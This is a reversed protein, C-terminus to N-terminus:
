YGRTVPGRGLVIDACYVFSDSMLEACEVATLEPRIFDQVCTAFVTSFCNWNANRTKYRFDKNAYSNSNIPGSAFECVILRHDSCSADLLVRWKDLRVDVSSLTVDISSEGMPSSYTPPAEPTNHVVLNMEAIFDEVASRRNADTSRLKGYWLPSSANVDAGVIIKRGALAHLVNRLNHIHSAVPDSLQFYCSVAYFKFFPSSIEAVACHTSTLNTIATVTINSNNRSVYIGARAKNNYLGEKHIVCLSFPGYGMM